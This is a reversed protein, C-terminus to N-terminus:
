WRGIVVGSSGEGARTALAEENTMTVRNKRDLLRNLLKDTMVAVQGAHDPDRGLDCIEQPDNKLDFLQSAFGKYYVLKWDETRIMYARADNVDVDLADRADYFAYDIESFAADRWDDPMEGRLLPGLSRGELRHPVDPAGTAEIFTPVLDIAEVMATSVTGRTADAEPRPDVIILPVRVACEHFLEKEGLWHDGLYDGHDSTFVIMTEDMKGSTELYDFLVGLQDDIQKILGMYAPMVTDRVEDRSFSQAVQHNMFAEYVPHPDDKQADDRVPQVFTNPGYMDHYPAPAIYPWHPKIYSLHCLWPQDGTEEIFDIARRTMYPTESHEERVRAPKNSHRLDWGSLIEGDPGEAANAWTNWPNPGDYGLDRLYDNYRLKGGRRALAGDPHLGDDREFAEFGPECIRAGMDSGPAIGLRAMGERDPVQHTKGVLATRMGVPELYDQITMEGIPIPVRNWTAGHSFVTRGTYTSARSPGCVPSQVYARDFRLGREALRDINPTELHPHGYCSLYDWRLQDAMIFLINKIETM